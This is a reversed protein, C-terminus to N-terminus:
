RSNGHVTINRFSLTSVADRIVQRTFSAAPMRLGLRHVIGRWYPLNRNLVNGTVTVNHLATPAVSWLDVPSGAGSIHNGTFKADSGVINAGRFYGRVHNGTVSVKDGHVEIAASYYAARGTLTNDSIVTGTGSTYISSHDHLPTNITKFVNRSITVNGTGGGTVITNVNDTGIFRDNVIKIGSGLLFRMVFRPSGKFLAPVSRIPNGAANQDFTVGTITLGSLDTATSAGTLMVAYDGSGSAVRLTTHHGVIREGQHLVLRPRVNFTGSPLNVTGGTPNDLLAQIRATAKAPSTAAAQGTTAQAAPVATAAASLTVGATVSSAIAYKAARRLSARGATRIGTEQATGFM